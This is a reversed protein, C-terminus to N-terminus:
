RTRTSKRSTTKKKRAKPLLGLAIALAEEYRGGFDIRTIDAMRFVKQRKNWIGGPAVLRTSVTAGELSMKSVQAIFLVDPKKVETYIALLPWRPAAHDILSRWSLPKSPAAFRPARGRVALVKEKFAAHPAPSRVSTIDAVRLVVFGNPQIDDSILSFVVLEEGLALVRGVIGPEDVLRKREVCVLGRDSM